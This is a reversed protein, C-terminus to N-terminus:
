RMRLVKRFIPRILLHERMALAEQGIGLVMMQMPLSISTEM